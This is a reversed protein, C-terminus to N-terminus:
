GIAARIALLRAGLHPNTILVNKVGSYYMLVGNVTLAFIHYLPLATIMIDARGKELYPKFWNSIM